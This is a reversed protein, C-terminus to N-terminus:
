APSEIWDPILGFINESYHKLYNELKTLYLKFNLKPVCAVEEEKKASNACM